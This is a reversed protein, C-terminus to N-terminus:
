ERNEKLYDNSMPKFKGAIEKLFEYYDYADARVADILADCAMTNEILKRAKNIWRIRENLQKQEERQWAGDKDM